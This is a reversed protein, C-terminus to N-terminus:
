SEGRTTPTGSEAGGPGSTRFQDDWHPVLRPALQKALRSRQIKGVATTPPDEGFIVVKPSAAFGLREACWTRIEDETVPDRAVVFAAVEEGYWRNAFGFTAAREVAPHSAVVDDVAQPAITSAGRSITDNLRGELFFWPRGDPGTIRYGRDGTHFWGDSFAEDTAHQDHAYGLMLMSGRAVLEGREGDDCERGTYDHVQVEAHPVSPGISRRFDDTLAGAAFPPTVTLVSTTESLGYLQRVPIDFQQEFEQAAAPRMPGSGSIVHDLSSSPKTPGADALLYELITPVLSSTTAGTEAAVSWFTSTRFRDMLVTSGGIFWPVFSNIILGNAHSIPLVNLTRTSSSWAFSQSMADCNVFLGRMSLLIPKPTGSTGSTHLRLAAAASDPEPGGDGPHDDERLVDDHCLVRARDFEASADAVMWPDDCAALLANHRSLPESPDLPVFCGGVWWTAFAILLTEPRNAALTAVDDGAQVGHRALRGAVQRVRAVWEAGTWTRAGERTPDELLYATNDAERERLLAHFSSWPATYDDVEARARRAADTTTMATAPAM